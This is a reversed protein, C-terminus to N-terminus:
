PSAKEEVIAGGVRHARGRFLAVLRGTAAETVEVDFIGSRGTGARERAAAILTEGKSAPSIFHIEAGAAVTVQNRANCAFAFASDAFTFILGGHCLDHGNIMDDRVTMRMRARGPAIEELAMGLARSAEDQALMARGVREALVRSRGDDSM